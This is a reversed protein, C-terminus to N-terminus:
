PGDRECRICFYSPAYTCGGCIPCKRCPAQQPDRYLNSAIAQM